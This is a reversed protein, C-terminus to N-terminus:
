LRSHGDLHNDNGHDYHQEDVDDDDEDGDPLPCAKGLRSHGDLCRVHLEKSQLHQARYVFYSLTTMMTLGTTMTMM